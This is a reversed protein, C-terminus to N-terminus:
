HLVKAVSDNFAQLVLVDITLILLLGNILFNFKYKKVGKMMWLLLKPTIISMQDPPPTSIWEFLCPNM